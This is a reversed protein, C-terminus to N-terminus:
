RFSEPYVCKAIAELGEVLRPGPASVLDGDIECIRGNKVAPVAALAPDKKFQEAGGPYVSLVVDPARGIIEEGSVQKAEAVDSFVNEARISRLMEDALSGSGLTWLMPAVDIYVKAPASPAGVKAVIERLRTQYDRALAEGAAPKGSIKGWMRMQEAVEDLKSPSKVYLVQAGLKKLDPVFRDFFIYVLDPKLVSIAEFNVNFADGVKPVSEVEPPYTVYSHTGAVRAGEGLAFLIEVAASDFAVIREPPRQFVVVEGDTGTISVPFVPM